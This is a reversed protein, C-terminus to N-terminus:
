RFCFSVREFEFAVVATAGTAAGACVTGRADPRSQSDTGASVGVIMVAGAVVVSVRENAADSAMVCGITCANSGRWRELSPGDPVIV